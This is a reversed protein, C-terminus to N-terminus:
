IALVTKGQARGSRSAELAEPAEELAVERGVLVTLRGADVQGALIELLQPSPRNVFNFGRLNNDTLEDADASGLLSVATGGDRVTRTLERFEAPGGVMDILVDVGDPHAALVQDALPGAAHDVTEAAGLTRMLEAKAPRATAIVEAGRGAALQTVFTGVGGTAGVVLVRTGETVRTEEVLNYATMGATPLGASTAYTVSRAAHALRSEDAVALECYSGGGQEPRQFQGFVADGVTFRRVGNGIALVEGAGDSGLVLPFAAPVADGFMGDALKWDVPNLGAASLRVLVEGPGPEPQPLDMLQPKEGFASVAVARM